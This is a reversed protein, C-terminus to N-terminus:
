ILGKEKLIQDLASTTLLTQGEYGDSSNRFAGRILEGQEDLSIKGYSILTTMVHEHGLNQSGAKFAAISVKRRYLEAVLMNRFSHPGFKPLGAAEFASNIIRRISGTGNWHERKVGVPIFQRRENHGMRTTPFLPDGPGFLEVKELYDVWDLFIEEVTDNIPILFTDIRKGFKTDVQDPRQIILRRRRDFHRLKLTTLAKVRIATMASLALIARDRKQIVTEFPMRSIAEEVMPLSPFDRERPARASRIMKESLNMFDIAQGKVSSKYGPQLSLWRLFQQVRKVTGLTTSLSLEKRAIEEKFSVAQKQNFTRFDAHGTFAEFRGIALSVQRITADAKGDAHKLFHFYRWKVQENAPCKTSVIKAKRM